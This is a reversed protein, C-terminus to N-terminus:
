REGLIATVEPSAFFPELHARILREATGSTSAHELIRPVLAQAHSVVDDRTLDLDELLSSAPQDAYVAFFGDVLADVLQGVPETPAGSIVIDQLLGAVRHVDERSAVRGVNGIPVEAYMDYVQLAAARAAPDKMTEVVLKNLRRMAFTAGKGATDGLLGEIQKDAVGVVKGAVNSGFSVLGGVGPIKEAVARSTAIVDGVIKTVFRAALAAALPSEAVQDLVVDVVHALGLVEGLLQDVHERDVLDALTVRESPGDYVRDAAVGVVTSATASAPVRALVLRLVQKVDDPQVLSGVTATRGAALLADVDDAILDGLDDGTIRSLHWAVQADLLRDATSPTSGTTPM